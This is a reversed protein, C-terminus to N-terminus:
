RFFAARVHEFAGGTDEEGERRFFPFQRDVLANEANGSGM